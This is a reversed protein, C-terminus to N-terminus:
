SAAVETDVSELVEGTERDVGPETAEVQASLVQEMLACERTHLCTRVDAQMGGYNRHVVQIEVIRDFCAEAPDFEEDESLQELDYDLSEFFEGTWALAEPSAFSFRKYLM